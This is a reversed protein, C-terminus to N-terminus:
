GRPTTWRRAGPSTGRAGPRSSRTTPRSSASRAPPTRASCPRCRYSAAAGCGAQVAIEAGAVPADREDVVRGEYRHDEEPDLAVVLGDVGAGAVLVVPSQGWEPAFPLFGDATVAALLWTGATRPVFRFAGAADATASAAEEGRAFTLAAGRIPAGGRASVVRGSFAGTRPAARAPPELRVAPHQAVPPPAAAAPLRPSSAAVVPPPAAPAASRDRLLLWAALLAVIIATALPAVRRM